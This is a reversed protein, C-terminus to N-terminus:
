LKSQISTLILYIALSHSRTSKLFTLQKKKHLLFFKIKKIFKIRIKFFNTTKIYLFIDTNSSKKNSVLFM